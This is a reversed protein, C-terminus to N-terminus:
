AKMRRASPTKLMCVPVSWMKRSFPRRSSKVPFHEHLFMQSCSAYKELTHPCCSAKLKGLIIRLFPHAKYFQLALRSSPHGLGAMEELAVDTCCFPLVPAVSPFSCHLAEGSLGPCHAM